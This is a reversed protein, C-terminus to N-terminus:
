NKKKNKIDKVLPKSPYIVFLSLQFASLVFAVLNQAIVIINGLCIGIFVSLHKRLNNAIEFFCTDNKGYLLWSLGVFFGTFIMPFPLGASSKNKIVDGLGLM